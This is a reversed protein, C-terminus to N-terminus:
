WEAPTFKKKPNIVTGAQSGDNSIQGIKNIKM